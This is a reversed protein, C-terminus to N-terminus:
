QVAGMVKALDFLKDRQMVPINSMAKAMDLTRKDTPGAEPDAKTTEGDESLGEFFFTIPVGMANAIDWLRSASVRNMSTEYKQIQQFTIGVKDALGQQTLGTMWRRHRIRQGVHKDVDHKTKLAPM